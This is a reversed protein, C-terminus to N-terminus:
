SRWCVRCEVSGPRRSGIHATNEDRENSKNPPTTPAAPAVSASPARLRERGEELLVALEGRGVDPRRHALAVGLGTLATYFAHSLGFIVGRIIVTSNWAAQGGEAFAAQYYLVNEVMAFGM